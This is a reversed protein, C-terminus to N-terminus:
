PHGQACATQAAPEFPRCVKIPASNADVCGSVLCRFGKYPCDSDQVCTLLHTAVECYGATCGSGPCNCVMGPVPGFKNTCDSLSSCTALALPFCFTSCDVLCNQSATCASCPNQGCATSFNVEVCCKNVCNGGIPCVSTVQCAQPCSGSSSVCSGGSCIANLPCDLDQTCGTACRPHGPVTTTDCGQGLPCDSAVVCGGACSKSGDPNQLCIEGTNCDSDQTCVNRRFCANARCQYGTAGEIAVCDQDVNCASRCLKSQPDCSFGAGCTRQRAVCEKLTLDCSQAPDACDPDGTCPKLSDPICANSDGCAKAPFCSGGRCTLGAACSGSSCAPVCFTGAATYDPHALCSSNAGCEADTKCAQCFGTIPKCTRLATNCYQGAACTSSSTCGAVAAVCLGTFANCFPTGGSCAADSTCVCRRLELDCRFHTACEADSSCTDPVATPPAPPSSKCAALSLVLAAWVCRQLM